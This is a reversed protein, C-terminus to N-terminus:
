RSNFYATKEYNEPIGMITVHTYLINEKFQNDNIDSQWHAM